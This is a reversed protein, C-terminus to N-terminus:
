LFFTLCNWEVISADYTNVILLWVLLACRCRPTQKYQNYEAGSLATPQNRLSWNHPSLMRLTRQAAQGSARMVELSSCCHVSARLDGKGVPVSRPESGSGSCQAPGWPFVYWLILCGFLFAENRYMSLTFLTYAFCIGIYIYIYIYISSIFM